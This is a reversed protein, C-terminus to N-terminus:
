TNARIRNMQQRCAKRGYREGNDGGFQAMFCLFVIDDATHETGQFLRCIVCDWGKPSDWLINSFLSPNGSSSSSSSSRYFHFPLHNDPDFGFCERIVFSLKNLMVIVIYFRLYQLISHFLPFNLYLNVTFHISLTIGTPTEFLM